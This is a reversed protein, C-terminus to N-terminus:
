GDGMAWGEEGAVRVRGPDKMAIPGRGIRPEHLVQPPGLVLDLAHTLRNRGEAKSRYLARDAQDILTSANVSGCPLTAIGLSATVRRLPWPYAAFQDLIRRGMRVSDERDCTPMLIAFEEGGYRGVTDSDRVNGSLIGATIRLAEDGAPHGYNDNYQKFHDVDVLILSVPWGQRDSLAAAAEVAERFYRHNRLGTLGDRTAMEALRSNQAELERHVRELEQSRQRLEQEMTLIRQAVNLRALMEPVDVPKTLFDDAGARLGELRDERVTRATLLMVYTYPRDRRARVQRCFDIGDLRPMMWDSIVIRAGSQELQALAEVGDEALVVEYGLGELHYRLVVRSARDDDAVLITRCAPPLAGEGAPGRMVQDIDKGM